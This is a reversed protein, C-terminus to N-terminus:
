LKSWALYEDVAVAVGTYLFPLWPAVGFLTNHPPLYSFIELKVLLAEFSTGMIMTGATFIAVGFSRDSFILYLLAASVGLMATALDIKPMVGSVLYILLFLMVAAVVKYGSAPKTRPFIKRVLLCGVGSMVGASGFLLPVWFPVGGFNFKLQEVPYQTTQTLVHIWDGLPILGAGILYLFLFRDRKFM